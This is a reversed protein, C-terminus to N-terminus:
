QLPISLVLDNITKEKKMAFKANIMKIEVENDSIQKLLFGDYGIQTNKNVIKLISAILIHMM